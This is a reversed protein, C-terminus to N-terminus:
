KDNYGVLLVAHNILMGSQSNAPTCSLTRKTASPKYFFWDNANVGIIIPRQILYSIVKEDSYRINPSWYSILSSNPFKYSVSPKLCM